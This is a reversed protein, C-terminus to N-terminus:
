GRRSQKARLAPLRVGFGGRSLPITQEWRRGWRTPPATWAVVLTHDTSSRLESNPLLVGFRGGPLVAGETPALRIPSPGSGLEMVECPVRDLTVRVDYAAGDGVNTLEVGAISPSREMELLEAQVFDSVGALVFSWEPQSRRWWQLWLTILTSAVAVMAAVWAAITAWDVPAGPVGPMAEPTMPLLM